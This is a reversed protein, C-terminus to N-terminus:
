LEVVYLCRWGSSVGEVEVEVSSLFSFGLSGEM